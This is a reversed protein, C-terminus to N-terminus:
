CDKLYVLSGYEFSILALTSTKTGDIYGNLNKYLTFNITHYSLARNMYFSANDSRLACCGRM